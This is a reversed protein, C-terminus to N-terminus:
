IEAAAADLASALRRLKEQTTRLHAAYYSLRRALVWTMQASPRMADSDVNRPKM